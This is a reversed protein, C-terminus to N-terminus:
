MLMGGGGMLAGAFETVDAIQTKAGVGVGWELGSIYNKFAGYDKRINM